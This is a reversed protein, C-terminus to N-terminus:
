PNVVCNKVSLFNGDNIFDVTGIITVSDKRNFKLASQNAALFCPFGSPTAEPNTAKEGAILLENRSTVDVITGTIKVVKGQYKTKRDKFNKQVDAVLEIATTEIEPKLQTVDPAPVHKVLTAERLFLYQKNTIFTGVFEVADGKNPSGTWKLASELCTLNLNEIPGAIKIEYTSESKKTRSDYTGGQSYPKGALIGRVKVVKGRFQDPNAALEEVSVTAEPKPLTKVPDSGIPLQQANNQNTASTTSSAPKKEGFAGTAWAIGLGVLVLAFVGGGIGLILPLPNSTEHKKKKKKPKDDDSASRKSRPLEDDSDAARPRKKLRMPENEGEDDDVVQLAAVKPKSVSGSIM